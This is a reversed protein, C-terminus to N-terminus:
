ALLNLRKQEFKDSTDLDIHNVINENIVEERTKYGEEIAEVDQKSLQPSAIIRIKGGNEILGNLGKTIEVLDSSSFFGVARKYFVSVKLVPIYFDIVINDHFARYEPKLELKTFGM